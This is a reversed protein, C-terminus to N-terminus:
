MLGLLEEAGNVASIKICSINQNSWFRAEVEVKSEFELGMRSGYKYGYRSSM